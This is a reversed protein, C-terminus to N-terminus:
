ILELAHWHDLLMPQHILDQALIDLFPM